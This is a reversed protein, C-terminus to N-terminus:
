PCTTKCIWKDTPCTSKKVFNSGQITVGLYKTANTVNLEKKHLKYPFIVPNRKRSIRLVECKDSNFEMSWDQEWQELAHLDNQLINADTTSKVTLYMITDDAFLRVKSKVSDPLDNIYALFLCPGLVSGQPVGSVVPLTDSTCGDIRVQQTRCQLFSKIWRTTLPAIGAHSVNCESLNPAMNLPTTVLGSGGLEKYKIDLM